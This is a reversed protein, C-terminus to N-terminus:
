DATRHVPKKEDDFFGLEDMKGFAWNDALLLSGSVEPLNMAYEDLFLFALKKENSNLKTEWDYAVNRVQNRIDMARIREDIVYEPIDERVLMACTGDTSFFRFPREPDSEPIENKRCWDAIDEVIILDGEPCIEGVLRGFMKYYERANM